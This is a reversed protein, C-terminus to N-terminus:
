KPTGIADECSFCVDVFFDPHGFSAWYNSKRMLALMRATPPCLMPTGLDWDIKLVLPERRPVVKKPPPGKKPPTKCFSSLYIFWFCCYIESFCFNCIWMRSTQWRNKKDDLERLWIEDKLLWISEVSEVEVGGAVTMGPRLVNVKVWWFAWILRRSRVHPAFSTVKEFDMPELIINIYHIDATLKLYGLLLCFNWWHTFRIDETQFEVDSCQVRWTARFINIPLSSEKQFIGKRQSKNTKRPYRWACINITFM